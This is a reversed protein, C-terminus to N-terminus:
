NLLQQSSPPLFLIDLSMLVYQELFDLKVSKASIRHIRGFACADPAVHGDSEDDSSFEVFGSNTLGRSYSPKVVSADKIKRFRHAPGLLGPLKALIDDVHAPCRWNRLVPPNALPPDLCDIHWWLSCFACPIIPRDEKASGHCSHCLM